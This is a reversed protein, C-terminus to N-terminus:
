AGVRGRRRMIAEVLDRDELSKIQISDSRAMVTHGVRGELQVRPEVLDRWLVHIAGNYVYLGEREFRLQNMMGPNIAEMGTRGHRFHVDLDEYVSIVHDSDYLLLTDVAERIHESRRLPTHIGLLAVVDSFLGYTNELSHVANDLVDVLKSTLASLGPPRLVALVDSRRGCHEVVREDDTTVLIQEFCESDIAADLTHDILPRGALPELAVNPMHEYTNKVPVIGVARPVTPGDFRAAAQRKISRRAALLRDENRSMSTGHQRYFFLPTTVHVVDFRHVLRLWVEHGDQADFSEDYGGTVKLARLRIMTCAGHPPLDSVDTEVGLQKRHEVGLFEGSESVYTWNPYVLAIERDSELVNSLVLLANSDLYDDADLRMLYRGRAVRIAENACARLGRPRAHRFVRVRDPARALFLDAIRCTDDSSGEDFILLEWSDFTQAFVSELCQQLFRGYNRSTVYVTVDPRTGSM